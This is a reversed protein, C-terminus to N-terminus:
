TVNKKGWELWADRMAGMHGQSEKPVPDAGTIVKLAIFWHDPSRELELLIWPVVSMGAAIIKKYARHEAMLTSSSMLGTDAKWIGVLRNFEAINMKDRRRRKTCREDLPKALMAWARLIKLRSDVAEYDVM